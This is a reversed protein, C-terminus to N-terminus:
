LHGSFVSMMTDLLKRFTGKKRIRKDPRHYDAGQEDATERAQTHCDNVYPLYIGSNLNESNRVNDIFEQDTMGEPLKVPSSPLDTTKPDFNEPVGSGKTGSSGSKSMGTGVGGVGPQDSHFFLHSAFEPKGFADGAYVRVELGLIDVFDNPNNRVFGYINLGGYENIPDRGLWKGKISDYYRYGYYHLGTEADLQKTSFQHSFDNAKTGSAVAQGFADYEYHAVSMGTSDVYESVNGNGDFTPYYTATTDNVALLGGVGGAGQMSGSLDMGWTYSKSLTTGSFEAIPNWGDYVFNTVTSGVTKTIRRSYADYAYTAVTSSDSKNQM